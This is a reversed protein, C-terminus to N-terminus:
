VQIPILTICLLGALFMLIGLVMRSRNLYDSDELPEPHGAVAFLSIFLGWFLWM